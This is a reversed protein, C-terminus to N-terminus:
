SFINPIGGYRGQLYGTQVNAYEAIKFDSLPTITSSRDDNKEALYIQAAPSIFHDGTNSAMLSVDNTTFILQGKGPNTERRNFLSMLKRIFISHFNLDDIFLLGGNVLVSHVSPIINLIKKTTYSQEDLREWSNLFKIKEINAYNNYYKLKADCIEIDFDRAFEVIVKETTGTNEPLFGHKWSWQCDAISDFKIKNNLYLYDKCMKLTGCTGIRVEKGQDDQCYEHNVTISKSGYMNCYEVNVSFGYTVHQKNEIFDIAFYATFDEGRKSFSFEPLNIQQKHDVCGNKVSLIMWQMAELFNTKGSGHGGYIVSVPMVTEGIVQNYYVESKADRPLGVMSIEAERMLSKYGSVRFRLFQSAM